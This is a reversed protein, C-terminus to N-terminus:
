CDLGSMLDVPHLSTIYRIPLKFTFRELKTDAWGSVYEYLGDSFLTPVCRLEAKLLKFRTLERYNVPWYGTSNRDIKFPRFYDNDDWIFRKRFEPNLKEEKHEQAYQHIIILLDKLM